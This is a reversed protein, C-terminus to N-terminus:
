KLGIECKKLKDNSIENFHLHCHSPLKVEVSSMAKAGYAVSFPIEQSWAVQQAFLGRSKHYSM